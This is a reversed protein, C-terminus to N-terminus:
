KGNGKKGSGGTSTTAPCSTRHLQVNGNGIKGDGQSSTYLTGFASMNLTDVGGGPEGQDGATVICTTTSTSGDKTCPFRIRRTTANVVDYTPVVTSGTIHTGDSHDKFNLHGSLGNAKYGGVFGFNAKTNNWPIWGVGTMFDKPTCSGGPGCTQVEAGCSGSISAQAHSIVVDLVVLTSVTALPGVSIGVEANGVVHIANVTIQNGNKIQENFIVQINLVKDGLVGTLSVTTNPAPNVPVAVKIGLVNLYVDVLTSSGELQTSGVPSGKASGPLCSNSETVLRADASAQLVGAQASLLDAVSLDLAAINADSSALNGMSNTVTNLLVVGVSAPPINGTITVGPVIIQKEASTPGLPGTDSVTGSVEVLAGLSISNNLLKTKLQTSAYVEIASAEGDYSTVIPIDTTCTQTPPRNGGAEASGVGFALGAAVLWTLSCRVRKWSAPSPKTKM